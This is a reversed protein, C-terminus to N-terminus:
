YEVSELVHERYEEFSGPWKRLTVRPPPEIPGPIIDASSSDTCKHHSTASVASKKDKHPKSSTNTMKKKKIVNKELVLLSTCSESLLRQDHSVMIVVGEFNQVAMVLASITGVDLHNTPEDLILVHPAAKTIVSFVVRSKEGGSLTHIPRLALSGGLGFRGLVARADHESLAPYLKRIHELPTLSLNLSDVHHQTFYAIRVHSNLIIRGTTPQLQGALLSLLTTKGTSNSGVIGIKEGARIDLNIHALLPRAEEELVKQRSKEDLDEEEKALSDDQEEDRSYKFSVDQVQIVQGALGVDTMDPQPFVFKFEKDPREVQSASTMKRGSWGGENDNMSGVRRGHEQAVFKKGDATKEFGMRGLKKQRSAIMGLNQEPHGTKRHQQKLKDISSKIHARKADLASQLQATHKHRESRIRMFSDYNGVYPRLQKKHFHLVDTAVANLFQVDHSVIVTTLNLTVLMTQLWFVGHLDLHNTPEDLLLLDPQVFIAQALAVRMRWGGSLQKVKKHQIEYESFGLESLIGSIRSSASDGEYLAIEEYVQSLAAQLQAVSWTSPAASSSESLVASATAEGETTVSSASLSSTSNSDSNETTTATTATSSSSSTTAPLQTKKEESSSLVEIKKLLDKEKKWLKQLPEHAQLVAQYITLERAVDDSLLDQQIYMINWNAYKEKMGKLKHDKLRTLFTSKGIGNNGVLAYIRGHVLHLLCPMLLDVGAPSVVSVDQLYLDNKLTTTYGGRPSPLPSTDSSSSSSAFPDENDNEQADTAKKEEVSPHITLTSETEKHETQSQAKHEVQLKIKTDKILQQQEEEDQQAKVQHQLTGDQNVLPPPPLAAHVFGSSCLGRLLHTAFTTFLAPDSPLLEQAELTDQLLEQIVQTQNQEVTNKNITRDDVAAQVINACYELVGEDVEVKPHASQLSHLVVTSLM